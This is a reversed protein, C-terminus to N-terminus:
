CDSHFDERDDDHHHAGHVDHFLDVSGCAPCQEPEDVIIIEDDDEFPGYEIKTVFEGSWECDQCEITAGGNKM